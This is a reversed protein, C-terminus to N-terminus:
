RDLGRVPWVFIYIDGVGYEFSKLDPYDLYWGYNSDPAYPTSTWYRYATGSFVNTHPIFPVNTPTGYAVLSELERLTPMRWDSYGGRGQLGDLGKCYNLAEVHPMRGAQEPAKIWTLGTLRDLVCNTSVENTDILFREAPWAVGNNTTASTAAVPCPPGLSESGQVGFVQVNTLLNVSKLQAVTQTLNVSTALYGAPLSASIPDFVIAEGAMRPGWHNTEALLGWFMVGPRVPDYVNAHTAVSTPPVPAPMLNYIGRLTYSNTTPPSSPETYEVPTGVAGTVLREYFAQLTYIPPSMTGSDGYGTWPFQIWVSVGIAASALLRQIPKAM